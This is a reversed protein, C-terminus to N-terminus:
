IRVVTTARLCLGLSYWRRGTGLADADYRASDSALVGTTGLSPEVCLVVTEFGASCHGTVSYAFALFSFKLDLGLARRSGAAVWFKAGFSYMVMGADMWREPLLVATGPVAGGSYVFNLM